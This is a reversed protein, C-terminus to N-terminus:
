PINSSAAVNFDKIDATLLTATPTCTAHTGAVTCPAWDWATDGTGATDDLQIKVQGPAPSIDFEISDIETPDGTAFIYEVSTIAYGSISTAGSGVNSVDITNSAAFAYASGAIVLVALVFLLVKFNRFMAKRRKAIGTGVPTAKHFTAM